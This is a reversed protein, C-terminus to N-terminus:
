PTTGVKKLNDKCSRSILAVSGDDFTVTMTGFDYARIRKPNVLYSRHTRIFTGDLETELTDLPVYLEHEQAETVLYTKKNRSEFFLINKYPISITKAKKTYTYVPEASDTPKQAPLMSLIHQVDAYQLPKQLMGTPLVQPTMVTLLSQMDRFVLLIRNDYSQERVRAVARCFGDPSATDMFYLSTYAPLAPLSAYAYDYVNGDEDQELQYRAIIDRLQIRDARADDCIFVDHM